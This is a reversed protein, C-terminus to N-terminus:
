ETVNSSNKKLLVDPKLTGLTPKKKVEFVNCPVVVDEFIFLNHVKKFLVLIDGKDFIFKRNYFNIYIPSIIQNKNLFCSRTSGQYKITVSPFVAALLTTIYSTFAVNFKQLILHNLALHKLYYVVRDNGRRLQLDGRFM